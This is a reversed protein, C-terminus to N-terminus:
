KILKIISNIYDDKPLIMNAWRAIPRIESFKYKDYEYNNTAIALEESGFSFLLYYNQDKNIIKVALYPLFVQKVLPYDNLLMKEDSLLFTLIELDKKKIRGFNEKVMFGAVSDSRISDNKLQGIADLIYLCTSDASQVLIPISDKTIIHRIMATDSDTSDTQTFISDTFNEMNGSSSLKNNSMCGWFCLSAICLFIPKESNKMF